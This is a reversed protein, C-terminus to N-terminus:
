INYIIQELVIKPNVNSKLYDQGRDLIKIKDLINALSNRNKIAELEKKFINYQILDVQDSLLLLLDRLVGKWVEIISFIEAVAEQGTASKSVLSNVSIMRDNINQNFFNIFLKAKDTWDNYFEKDELLKVALAPRGQCLHSLNKAASRSAQYEELLYDYIISRSVPYFNLVQSRSAITKPIDQLDTAVLIIVVKDHPEELTKLLASSAAISLKEANKIIGIKYSNMFSSMSLKKIFERIQEISINKKDDEKKIVHFDGHLINFEPLDISKARGYKIAIKKCSECEECPLPFNSRKSDTCLLSKAFFHAITTKGLNNPGLFIYSHAIKDNKIGKSLFNIVNENGVLPWNNQKDKYKM